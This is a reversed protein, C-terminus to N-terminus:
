SDLLQESLWLIIKREHFGFTRRLTKYHTQKICHSTALGWVWGELKLVVWQQSDSVAFIHSLLIGFLIVCFICHIQLSITHNELKAVKYCNINSVHIFCLNFFYTQFSVKMMLATWQSIWKTSDVCRMIIPNLSLLTESENWVTWM